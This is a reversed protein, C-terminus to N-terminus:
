TVPPIARIDLWSTHLVADMAALLHRTTELVPQVFSTAKENLGDGDVVEPWPFLFSYRTFERYSTGFQAADNVIIEGSMGRHTRLGRVAYSETGAEPNADEPRVHAGLSNRVPELIKEISNLKKILELFNRYLPRRHFHQRAQRKLTRGIEADFLHKAELVSVSLRRLFYAFRWLADPDGDAM